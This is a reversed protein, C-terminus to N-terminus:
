VKIPCNNVACTFDANCSNAFDPIQFNFTFLLNPDGCFAICANQADTQSTAGEITACKTPPGQNVSRCSCCARQPCYTCKKRKKKKGKKATASLGQGAVAATGALLGAIARRRGTESAFATTWRDFHQQDM